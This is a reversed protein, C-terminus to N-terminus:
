RYCMAMTTCLLVYHPLPPLRVFFGRWPSLRSLVIVLCVTCSRVLCIWLVRRCAPPNEDFMAEITELETWQKWGGSYFIVRWRQGNDDEDWASM